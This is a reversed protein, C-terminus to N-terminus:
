QWYTSPCRVESIEGNCFGGLFL